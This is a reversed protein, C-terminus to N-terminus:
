LCATYKRDFSFKDSELEEIEVLILVECRM